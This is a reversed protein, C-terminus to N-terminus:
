FITEYQNKNLGIKANEPFFDLESSAYVCITYMPSKWNSTIEYKDHLISFNINDCVPYENIMLKSIKNNLKNSKLIEKYRNILESVLVFKYVSKREQPSLTNGM